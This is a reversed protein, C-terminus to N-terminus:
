RTAATKAKSFARLHRPGVGGYTDAPIAAKTTMKPLAARIAETVADMPAMGDVTLVVGRSAYFPLIAATKAHYEALRATVTEANDDARRSFNTGSCTACRGDAALPRHRDHYGSGCDSCAFRGSIRDVLAAEDVSLEVVHEIRRGRKELMAELAEAQATTRPFGDFIAGASGLGDLREGIMAVIIADSVLGGSEMVAKAAQGAPTGAKVASRLMDGTSLHALAYESCLREAQTGKGAGPPGLLIVYM